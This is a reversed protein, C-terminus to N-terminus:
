QNIYRSYWYFIELLPILLATCGIILGLLAIKKRIGTHANWSYNALFLLGTAFPVVLMVYVISLEYWNPNMSFPNFGDYLGSILWLSFVIAIFYGIATKM